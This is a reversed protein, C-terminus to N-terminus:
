KKYVPKLFGVIMGLSTIFFYIPYYFLLRIDNYYIVKKISLYVIPLIGLILMSLSLWLNIWFSIIFLSVMLIGFITKVWFKQNKPNSKISSGIWKRKQFLEKPNSDVDHDFIADDVRARKDNNPIRDDSYGRSSDFGGLKDFFDKRIARFVGSKIAHHRLESTDKFRCRAWPNKPSAVVWAGISTKFKGSRIPKTLKELYDKKPYEDSDVFVLIEGKAKKAALNKAIGPGQRDQELLYVNKNNEVFSKVIEKTKDKSGDDVVFIEIRSYTQNLLSSICKSIKKEANFASIITSILPTKKTM